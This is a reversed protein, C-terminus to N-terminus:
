GFYDTLKTGKMGQMERTRTAWGLSELVVEVKRATPENITSVYKQLTMAAQLAEARTPALTDNSQLDDDDADLGDRAAKADMVAEYIDEGTAEFFDHAEM